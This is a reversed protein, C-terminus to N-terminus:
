GSSAGSWRSLAVRPDRDLVLLIGAWLSIAGILLGPLAGLVDAEAPEVLVVAGTGGSASVVYRGTSPIEVRGASGEEAPPGVPVPRTQEIAGAFRIQLAVGSGSEQRVDYAGSDLSATTSAGTAVRTADVVRGDGLGLAGRCGPVLLALAVLVLVAGIGRRPTM